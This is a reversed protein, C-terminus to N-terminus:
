PTGGRRELALLYHDNLWTWPFRRGARREWHALKQFLVPRREVLHGLYTPPLLVGVGAAALPRFFPAFERRVTRPSPYWVPLHGGGGAHASEGGRLRRFATGVRGHLLHWAMEWPCLPGMIVLVVRGAPPVCAALARAIPRRDAVCNLAGFNSLVGDFTRGPVWAELEHVDLLQVDIRDAVAAAAAKDRAVDIMGASADTATVHMGRQALWVADEGTGCGLELVRDGPRFAASLQERVTGRLWAGLRTQTFDADYDTAIADFPSARPVAAPM